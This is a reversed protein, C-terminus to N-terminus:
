REGMAVLPRRVSDAAPRDLTRVDKVLLWAMFSFERVVGALASILEATDELAELPDIGRPRRTRLTKARTVHAAYGAAECHVSRRRTRALLRSRTPTGTRSGGNAM